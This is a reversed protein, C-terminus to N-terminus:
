GPHGRAADFCLQSGDVSFQLQGHYGPASGHAPWRCHGTRRKGDPVDCGARHPANVIGATLLQPHHFEQLPGDFLGEALARKGPLASSVCEAEFALSLAGIKSTAGM